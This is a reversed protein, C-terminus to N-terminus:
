LIALIANKVVRNRSFNCYKNVNQVLEAPQDSSHIQLPGAGTCHYLVWQLPM